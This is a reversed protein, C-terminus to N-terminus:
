KQLSKYQNVQNVLSDMVTISPNTQSPQMLKNIPKGNPGLVYSKGDAGMVFQRNQVFYHLADLDIKFHTQLWERLMGLKKELIAKGDVGDGGEDTSMIYQIGGNEDLIPRDNDDRKIKKRIVGMEALGGSASNLDKFTRYGISDMNVGPTNVLAEYAAPQMDISDEEWEYSATNLMGAWENDSRVVYNALLEVWDDEKCNSAYQLMFGESLAISDHTEQWNLPNFRGNSIDVFSTPIIVNQHLIHGFEHHMTKFYFENVQDINTEDLGNCRYLTIKLGGEAEGLKMTGSSPNYAPSGILHIIHPTYTKLFKVGGVEKYVDYWLYKALVAMKVSKEYETPVLNYNMDSGIDELRYIFRLNYPQLFEKKLFSDLPFSYSTRDLPYDTTDFISDKLDDDSCAVLNLGALAMLAFFLINLRSKM